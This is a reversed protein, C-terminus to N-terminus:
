LPSIKALLDVSYRTNWSQKRALHKSQAHEVIRTSMTSLRGDAGSWYAKIGSARSGDNYIDAYPAYHVTGLTEHQLTRAAQWDVQWNSGSRYRQQFAALMRAPNTTAPDCGYSVRVTHNRFMSDLKRTYSGLDESARYTIQEAPFGSSSGNAASKKWRNRDVPVRIACAPFEEFAPAFSIDQPTYGGYDTKGIKTQCGALALAAAMAAAFLIPRPMLHTM